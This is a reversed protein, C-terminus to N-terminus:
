AKIEEKNEEEDKLLDKPFPRLHEAIFAVAGGKGNDLNPDTRWCDCGSVHVTEVLTVVKNNHRAGLTGTPASIWCLDGKSLNKQSM